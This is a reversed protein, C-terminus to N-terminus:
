DEIKWTSQPKPPADATGRGKSAAAPRETPTAPAPLSPPAASPPPLPIMGAFPDAVEDPLADGHMRWAINLRKGFAAIEEDTLLMSIGARRMADDSKAQIEAMARYAVDESIAAESGYERHLKEQTAKWVRQNVGDFGPRGCPVSLWGKGDVSVSLCGLNEDDRKTRVRRKGHHTYLQHLAQSQFWLNQTRVGRPDLTAEGDVGFTNRLVEAGPPPVVGYRDALRHFRNYPTDGDLGFHKRNHYFDVVYRVLCWCFEDVVLSARLKPDRDGKEVVNAFTRGSFREVFQTHMTGFLREAHGRFRAMGAPPHVAAADLSLIARHVDDGVYWSAQDLGVVEFGCDMDWPTLGGVADVFMAKRSVGMRLTSLATRSDATTWLRMALICRSAVDLIVSLWARKNALAERLEPTILSLVGTAAALTFLPVRWEDMEVWEGPRVIEMGGTNPMYRAAADSRGKRGAEIIYSSIAHVRKSFTKDSPIQLQDDPPRAANIERLKGALDGHLGAISKENECCYRRAFEGMLTEVFAHLRPTRNGSLCRRDILVAPTDHMARANIWKRLSKFGPPQEIVIRTGPPGAAARIQAEEVMRQQLLAINERMSEDDLSAVGAARLANYRTVWADKWAVKEQERRELEWFKMAGSILRAAARALSFFDREFSYGQSKEIEAFRAFSVPLYAGPNDVPDFVYGDEFVCGGDDPKAIRYYVTRGKKEPIGIRDDRTFHRRVIDSM